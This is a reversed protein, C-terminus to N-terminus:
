DTGHIICKKRPVTCVGNSEVVNKSADFLADWHEDGEELQAMIVSESGAASQSNEDPRELDDDLLLEGEHKDHVPRPPCFSDSAALKSNM